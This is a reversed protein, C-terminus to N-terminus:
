SPRKFQVHGNPPTMRTWNQPVRPEIAL